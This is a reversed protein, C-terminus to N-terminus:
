SCRRAHGPLARPSLAPEGLYIDGEGFVHYGSGQTYPLPHDHALSTINSISFTLPHKHTCTQMISTYSHKLSCASSIRLRPTFSLDIIPSLRQWRYVATLVIANTTSHVWVVLSVSGKCSRQGFVGSCRADEMRTLIPM